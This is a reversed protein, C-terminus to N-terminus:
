LNITSNHPQQARAARQPQAPSLCMSTTGAAPNGPAAADRWRGDLLVQCSELQLKCKCDFAKLNSGKLDRFNVRVIVEATWLLGPSLHFYLARFSKGPHEQFSSFFFFFFLFFFFIYLLLMLGQLEQLPPLENSMLLGFEARLSHLCSSSHLAMLGSQEVHWGLFDKQIGPFRSLPNARLARLVKAPWCLGRESLTQWMKM